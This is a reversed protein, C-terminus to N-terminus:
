SKTPVHSSEQASRLQQAAAEPTLDRQPMALLEFGVMHKRVTASRLLPPYFHAHLQWEPHMDNDSPRPHFGMSYPMPVGFLRDYAAVTAHLAEAFGRLRGASLDHLAGAAHRPALLTEFPWTAWFPVLSVAEDNSFIVRSGQAIEAALYDLLLSRGNEKWYAHQSRLEKAPENPMSSTAWIQAHPHPNSCGMMEGRNEFAQVYHIDPRQDLARCEDAIFQLVDTLEALNMNCVHRDHQESFCVVRCCGSAAEQRFLPSSALEPKADPSLAPFDNDFAFPGTYTPNRQSKARQNGPCLYCDKDYPMKVSAPRQEIQGKWPRQTRQPSVLVSEGTLLNLRRHSHAEAM